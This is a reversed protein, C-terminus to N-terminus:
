QEEEARTRDSLKLYPRAIEMAADARPDRFAPEPYKLPNRNSTHQCWDDFTRPGASM